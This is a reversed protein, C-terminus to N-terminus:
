QGRNTTLESSKKSEIAVWRVTLVSRILNASPLGLITTLFATSFHKTLSQIVTGITEPSLETQSLSEIGLSIGLLTFTLALTAIGSAAQSGVEFWVKAQASTSIKVIAVIGLVMLGGYISLFLPGFASELWEFTTVMNFSWIRTALALLIIVCGLVIATLRLPRVSHLLLGATTSM